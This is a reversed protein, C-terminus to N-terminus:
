LDEYVAHPGHFIPRDGARAGSSDPDCPISTAPKQRPSPDRSSILPGIESAAADQHRQTLRGGAVPRRPALWRTGFCPYGRGQPQGPLGRLRAPERDTCRRCPAPAGGSGPSAGGAHKDHGEHGVVIEPRGPVGIEIRLHYLKGKHHHRHPAEVVVRCSTIRSFYRELKDIEERVRKEVFESSDIDRFSIQPAVDM